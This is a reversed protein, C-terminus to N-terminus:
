TSLVQRGQIRGQDVGREKRGRAPERMRGSLRVVDTLVPQGSAPDFKFTGYAIPQIAQHGKGLKMEVPGSPSEFTLDEFAAIVADDSPREPKGAAAKEVASKLGLIAQVMKYSPYTPPAGYRESYAKRFWRNLENDPAFVGHPGRAGIIVGDPIQTALRFMATEGATLIVSRNDFM